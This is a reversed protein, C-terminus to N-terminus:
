WCVIPWGGCGYEVNKSDLLDRLEQVGNEDFGSLYLRVQYYRRGFTGIEGIKIIKKYDSLEMKLRRKKKMTKIWSSNSPLGLYSSSLNAQSILCFFM